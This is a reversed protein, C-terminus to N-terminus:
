NGFVIDDPLENKDKDNQYPFASGLVSGLDNITTVLGEVMKNAKLFSKLKEAENAWWNEGLKEYIHKDGFLAFQKDKFAMYVLVANRDDTKHMQLKTFIEKARDLPNLFRCYREMYLRVEGSTNTEAHKIAQIIEQQEEASLYPKAKFWGFM